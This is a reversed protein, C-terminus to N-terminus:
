GHSEHIHFFVNKEKRRLFTHVAVPSTSLVSLVSSPFHIWRYSTVCPFLSICASEVSFQRRWICSFYVSLLLLLLFCLLLCVLFLQHLTKENKRLFPYASKFRRWWFALILFIKLHASRTLCQSEFCVLDALLIDTRTKRVIWVINKQWAFLLAGLTPCTKGCAVQLLWENTTKNTSQDMIFSINRNPFTWNYPNICLISHLECPPQTASTRGVSRTSSNGGQWGTHKAWHFSPLIM